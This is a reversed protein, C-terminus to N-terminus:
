LPTKVEGSVKESTTNKNKIKDYGKKASWAAILAGLGIAIQEHLPNIPASADNTILMQVIKEDGRDYPDEPTPDSYGAPPQPMLAPLKDSEQFMQCSVLVLPALLLLAKM